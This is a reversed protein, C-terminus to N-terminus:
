SLYTRRSHSLIGRSTSRFYSNKPGKENNHWQFTCSICLISGFRIHMKKAVYLLDYKINSINRMFLARYYSNKICKEWHKTTRTSCSHSLCYCLSGMRTLRSNALWRRAVSYSFIDILNFIMISNLEKKEEILKNFFINLTFFM